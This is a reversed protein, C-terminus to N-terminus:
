PDVKQQNRVMEKSLNRKRWYSIMNGFKAYFVSVTSGFLCFGNLRSIVRAVDRKTAYRVFGFRRGSRSRKSPIFADVVDEHHKLTAWLGKGHMKELLNHVFITKPPTVRNHRMHTEMIDKQLKSTYLSPLM